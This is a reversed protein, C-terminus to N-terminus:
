VTDRAKGYTEGQQIYCLVRLGRECNSLNGRIPYLVIGEPGEQVKRGQLYLWVPGACGVLCSV